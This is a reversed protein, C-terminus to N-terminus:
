YNFLEFDNQSNSRKVIENISFLPPFAGPDSYKLSPTLTVLHSANTQQPKMQPAM